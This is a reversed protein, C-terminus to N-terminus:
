GIAYSSFHELSKFCTLSLKHGVDDECYVVDAGASQLTEVVKRGKEIPVLEDRTGHTVFAPKGALPKRLVFQEIREPLFGALVALTAVRQPYLLSYAIGLAAGQSFGVLHINELDASPFNDPVLLEHLAQAAPQLEEIGPWLGFRHDHWGYGGLPTSFLGRPSILMAKKPLRPAFIWMANEDGTWGHLMLVLPHIGAHSPTRQNITWNDFQRIEAAQM